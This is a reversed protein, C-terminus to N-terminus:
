TNLTQPKFSVLFLLYLSFYVSHLPLYSLWYLTKSHLCLYRVKSELIWMFLVPTKTLEARPLSPCTSEQLGM